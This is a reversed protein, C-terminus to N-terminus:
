GSFTHTTTVSWKLLCTHEYVLTHTPQLIRKFDAKAPSSSYPAWPGAKFRWLLILSHKGHWMSSDRSKQRLASVQFGSGSFLADTLIRTKDIVRKIMKAHPKSPRNCVVFKPAIHVSSYHVILGPTHKLFPWSQNVKLSMFIVNIGFTVSYCTFLLSRLANLSDPRKTWKRQVRFPFSANKYVRESKVCIKLSVRNKSYLCWSICSLVYVLTYPRCPNAM